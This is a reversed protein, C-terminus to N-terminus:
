VVKALNWVSTQLPFTFFILMVEKIYFCLVVCKRKTFVQREQKVQEGTESVGFGVGNQVSQSSDYAHV